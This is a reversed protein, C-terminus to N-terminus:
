GIRTGDQVFEVGHQHGTVNCHAVDARYELGKPMAFGIERDPRVDRIRVSPGFFPGAVHTRGETVGEKGLDSIAVIRLIHQEHGSACRGGLDGTFKANM